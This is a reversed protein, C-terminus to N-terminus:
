GEGGGASFGAPVLAGPGAPERGSAPAADVLGRSRAGSQRRPHDGLVRRFTCVEGQRHRDEVAHVSGEKRPCRGSCRPTWTRVFSIRRMLTEIDGQIDDLRHLKQAFWDEDIIQKPGCLQKFIEELLGLHSDLLLQRFDPIQCVAWLLAVREPSSALRRVEPNSSLEQLAVGDEAGEVMRLCAKHPRKRLSTLLADLSSMDLDSNHWQVRRVPAFSHNELAFVVDDDLAPLPALTVFAGDNRYRGARGAMLGLQQDIQRLVLLGGDSSAMQADFAGVVERRGHPHFSLRKPTCETQM